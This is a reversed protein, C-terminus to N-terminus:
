WLLEGIASAPLFLIWCPGGVLLEQELCCSSLRPPPLDGLDLCRQPNQLEYYNANFVVPLKFNRINVIIFAALWVNVAIGWVSTHWELPQPTQKTDPDVEITEQDLSLAQFLTMALNPGVIMDPQCSFIHLSCRDQWVWDRECAPFAKDADDGSM